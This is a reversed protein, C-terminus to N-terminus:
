SVQGTTPYPVSEGLKRAKSTKRPPTAQKPRPVKKIAPLDAARPEHRGDCGPTMRCTPGKGDRDISVMSVDGCTTCPALAHGTARGIVAAVLTDRNAKIAAALDPTVAGTPADIRLRGSSVYAVAGLETLRDFIALPSL